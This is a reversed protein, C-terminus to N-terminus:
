IKFPMIKRWNYVNALPLPIASLSSFSQILVVQHHGFATASVHRLQLFQTTLTSNYMYQSVSDSNFFFPTCSNLGIWLATAGRTNIQLIVPLMKYLSIATHSKVLNLLTADERSRRGQRSSTSWVRLNIWRTTAHQLLCLTDSAVPISSCSHRIPHLLFRRTQGV